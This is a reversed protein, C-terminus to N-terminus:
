DDNSPYIIPMMTTGSGTARADNGAVLPLQPSDTRDIGMPSQNPADNALENNIDPVEVTDKSRKPVPVLNEVCSRMSDLKRKKNSLQPM